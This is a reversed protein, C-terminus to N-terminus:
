CAGLDQAALRRLDEIAKDAAALDASIEDHPDDSYHPDDLTEVLKNLRHSYPLSGLIQLSRMLAQRATLIVIIVM